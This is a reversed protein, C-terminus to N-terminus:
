LSLGGAGEQPSRRSWYPLCGVFFTICGFPLALQLAPPESSLFTLLGLFAEQLFPFERQTWCDLYPEHLFPM